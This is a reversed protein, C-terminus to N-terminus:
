EGLEATFLPKYSAGESSLISKFLTVRVAVDDM